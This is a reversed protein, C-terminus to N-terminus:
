HSEQDRRRPALPVGDRGVRKVAARHERASKAEHCARCLPQLNDPDWAAGGRGIPVVHDVEEAARTRGEASCRRCLPEGALISRRLRRWRRTNHVDRSAQGSM